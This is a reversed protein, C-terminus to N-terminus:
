IALIPHLKRIHNIRWVQSDAALHSSCFAITSDMVRFSLGVSGASMIECIFFHADATYGHMCSHILRDVTGKNAANQILLNVGTKVGSVWDNLPKVLGNDLQTRRVFVWLEIKGFFVLAEGLSVKFATFDDLGLLVAM